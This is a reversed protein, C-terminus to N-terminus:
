TKEYIYAIKENSTKHGKNFENTSRVNILIIIFQMKRKCKPQKITMYLFVISMQDNTKCEAM